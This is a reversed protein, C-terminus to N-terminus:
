GGKKKLEGEPTDITGDDNIVIPFDYRTGDLWRLYIKDGGTWREAEKESTLGTMKGNTMVVDPERLTAKGSRFVITPGPGGGAPGYRGEFRGACSILGRKPAQGAPPAPPDAQGGPASTQGPARHVTVPQANRALARGQTACRTDVALIQGRQSKGRMLPQGNLFSQLDCWDATAPGACALVKFSQNNPCQWVAGLEFTPTDAFAGAMLSFTVLAVIIPNRM